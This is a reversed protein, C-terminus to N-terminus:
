EKQFTLTPPAEPLRKRDEPETQGIIISWVFSQHVLMRM